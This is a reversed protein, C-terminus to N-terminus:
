KMKDRTSYNRKSRRVKFSQKPFFTNKNKSRKKNSKGEKYYYIIEDPLIAERPYYDGFYM